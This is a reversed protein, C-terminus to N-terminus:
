RRSRAPRHSPAPAAVGHVKEARDLAREITRPHVSVDFRERVRRALEVARLTSDTALAERLFSLVPASLKHARRPGRPQPLLGLLGAKEFAAQALYFAPRSFGFARVARAIPVGDVRVRRLMEYKVQVVDRPDFFASSTFLADSVEGSRAHVANADRLSALKPDQRRKAM